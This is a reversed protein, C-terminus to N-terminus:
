GKRRDEHPILLLVKNNSIFKTLRFRCEAYIQIDKGLKTTTKDYPVSTLLDDVHFSRKLTEYIDLSFRNQQDTSIHMMAYNHYRPSSLGFFLHLVMQYDKPSSNLDNDQWWLFRLSQCHKNPVKVQHFMSEIDTMFAVHEERFRIIASIILNSFNPGTM